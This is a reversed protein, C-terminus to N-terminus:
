LFTIKKAQNDAQGSFQKPLICGDKNALFFERHWHQGAMIGTREMKQFISM